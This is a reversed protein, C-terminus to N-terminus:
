MIKSVSNQKRYCQRIMTLNVVNMLRFSINTQRVNTGSSKNPKGCLLQLGKGIRLIRVSFCVCVRVCVCVCVRM